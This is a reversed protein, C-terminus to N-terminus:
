KASCRWKILTGTTTCDGSCDTLEFRYLGVPYQIAQLDGDTSSTSGAVDTWTTGGDISQQLNGTSTGAHDWLVVMANRGDCAGVSNTSATDDVKVAAFSGFETVYVAAGAPTAALLWAALLWRRM